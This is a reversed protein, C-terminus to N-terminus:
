RSLSTLLFKELTLTFDLEGRHAKHYIDTLQILHKKLTVQDFTKDGNIIMTKIKWFLIGSIEEPNVNKNILRQYMTWTGIKDKKSFFTAIDFINYDPVKKIEKKLFREIAYKKFKKEDTMNMFDIFFIFNNESKDLSELLTKNFVEESEILVDNLFLSQKQGFLSSTGAYNELLNKNIQLPSLVVVESETSFKKLIDKKNNLDSGIFIYIM